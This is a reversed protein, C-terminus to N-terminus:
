EGASTLAALESELMSLYGDNRSRAIAVAKEMHAIAATLDGNLALADSMSRYAWQSEPFADLHLTAAVIARKGDGLENVLHQVPQGIQWEAGSVRTGFRRNLDEYHTVFRTPDEVVADFSLLWDSFQARFAGIQSVLPTTMHDENPFSQAVLNAQQAKLQKLYNHYAAEQRGKEDALSLYIFPQTAFETASLQAVMVEEDWWLSPSFLYYADFLTTRTHLAHAALLGGLSHGAIMDYGSARYGKDIKPMLEQQLFDLYRDAKGSERGGGPDETPTFYAFRNVGSLAVVIIQPMVNTSNLFAASAVTHDAHQAGDLLYLVPYTADSDTQYAEPLHITATMARDLFESTLNLVVEGAQAPAVIAWLLALMALRRM